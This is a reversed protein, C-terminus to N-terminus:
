ALWLWQLARRDFAGSAQHGGTLTMTLSAIM